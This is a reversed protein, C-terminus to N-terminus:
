RWSSLAANSRLRVGSASTRASPQGSVVLAESSVGDTVEREIEREM